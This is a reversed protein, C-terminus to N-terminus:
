YITLTFPLYALAGDQVTYVTVTTTSAGVAISGSVAYNHAGLVGNLATVANAIPYPFTANPYAVTVIGTSVATVTFSSAMPGSPAGSYQVISPSSGGTVSMVANPVVKCISIQQLAAMNLLAATPHTGPLPPQEDDNQLSAGNYDITGPRRPPSEDWTSQGPCNEGPLPAAPATM